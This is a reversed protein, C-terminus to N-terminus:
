FCLSFIVRLGSPNFIPSNPMNVGKYSYNNKFSYYYYPKIFINRFVVIEIGGGMSITSSNIEKVNATQLFNNFDFTNFLKLTSGDISTSITPGLYFYNEIITFVYSLGLVYTDLYDIVKYEGFTNENIPFIKYAYTFSLILGKNAFGINLGLLFKNDNLNLGIQNELSQYNLYVGSVGLIAKSLKIDEQSYSKSSLIFTFFSLIILICLEKKM